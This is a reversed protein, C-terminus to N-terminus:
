IVVVFGKLSFFPSLEQANTSCFDTGASFSLLLKEEIRLSVEAGDSWIRICIAQTDDKCQGMTVPIQGAYCSLLLFILQIRQVMKHQVNMSLWQPSVSTEKIWHFSCCNQLGQLNQPPSQEYRQVWRLALESSFQM